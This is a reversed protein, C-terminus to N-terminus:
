ADALDKYADLTKLAEYAQRVDNKASAKHDPSYKGHFSTVESSPDAEKSGKDKFILGNYHGLVSKVWTKEYVAETKLSGDENYVAATKEVMKSNYNVSCQANSIVVYANDIDIGKWTLKGELAM